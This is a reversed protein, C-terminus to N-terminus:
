FNGVGWSREWAHEHVCINQKGRDWNKLVWIWMDQLICPKWQPVSINDKFCRLHPQLIVHIGRKQPASLMTVDGRPLCHYGWNSPRWELFRAGTRQIEAGHPVLIWQCLSIDNVAANTALFSCGSSEGLIWLDWYTILLDREHRQFSYPNNLSCVKSQIM